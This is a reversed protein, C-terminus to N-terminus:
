RPSWSTARTPTGSPEIGLTGLGERATMSRPAAPRLHHRRHADGSGRAVRAQAPAGATRREDLPALAFGMPLFRTNALALLGFSMGVAAIPLALPM